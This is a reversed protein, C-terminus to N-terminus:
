QSQTTACGGELGTGGCITCRYAVRRERDGLFDRTILVVRHKHGLCEPCLAQGDRLAQLVDRDLPEWPMM